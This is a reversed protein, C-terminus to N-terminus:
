CKRTQLSVRLRSWSHSVYSLEKCHISCIHSSGHNLNKRKQSRPLCNEQAHTKIQRHLCKDQIYWIMDKVMTITKGQLTNFSIPVINQKQVIRRKSTSSLPSLFFLETHRNTRGEINGTEKRYNKKKESLSKIQCNCM